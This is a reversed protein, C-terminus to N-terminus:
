DGNGSDFVVQLPARASLTHAGQQEAQAATVIRWLGPIDMHIRHAMIRRVRLHLQAQM